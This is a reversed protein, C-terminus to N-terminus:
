DQVAKAVTICRSVYGDRAPGTAEDTLAWLANVLGRVVVWDRARAEDLSAGDVVAHFRERVAARRDGTAAAEQWRNWLLPAVEFHPDGSLPKPDIVLWPEAGAGARCGALVNDYHLDTHILRGDCGPDAALDAALAAAQAVYRRPLPATTPLALLDGAWRAAQASLKRLREPAPVHLRPYLGAVVECAAVAPLASLDRDADARELLFAFRRPDARLLRVAGNGGWARLALHEHDAERHPWELKLACARGDASRVPDVLSCAGHRSPGDPSLEWEALLDRRLGPLRDVWPRWATGRAAWAAFVQEEAPGAASPTHATM